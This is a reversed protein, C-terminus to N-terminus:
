NEGKIAKHTLFTSLVPLASLLLMVVGSYVTSAEEATVGVIGLIFFFASLFANIMLITTFYAEMDPKSDPELDNEALKLAYEFAEKDLREREKQILENIYVRLDHQLGHAKITREWKYTHISEVYPNDERFIYTRSVQERRADILDYVVTITDTHHNISVRFNTYYNKSFKSQIRM